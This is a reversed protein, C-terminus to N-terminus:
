DLDQEPMSGPNPGFVAATAISAFPLYHVLGDGGFVIVVDFGAPPLKIHSQSQVIVHNGGVTELAFPRFPQVAAFEEIQETTMM